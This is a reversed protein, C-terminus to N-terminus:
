SSRLPQLMIIHWGKHIFLFDQGEMLQPYKRGHHNKQIWRSKRGPGGPKEPRFAHDTAESCLLALSSSGSRMLITNQGGSGFLFLFAQATCKLTVKPNTRHIYLYILFYIRSVLLSVQIITHYQFMFSLRFVIVSTFQIANDNRKVLM